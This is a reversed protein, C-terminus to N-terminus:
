KVHVLGHNSRKQVRARMRWVLAAVVSAGALTLSVVAAIMMASM